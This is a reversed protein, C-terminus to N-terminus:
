DTVAFRGLWAEIEAVGSRAYADLDHQADTRQLYGLEANGLTCLASGLSVACWRTAKRVASWVRHMM